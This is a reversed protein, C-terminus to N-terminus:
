KLGYYQELTEIYGDLDMAELENLYNQWVADDNIDLRGTIFQTNMTSIHTNINTKYDAVAQVVDEDACWIINPTNHNVYYPEYVQASSVLILTNDTEIMSEDKESAYRVEASDVRPHTSGNWFWKEGSEAYTDIVKITNNTGLYNEADVREYTEDEVGWGTFWTGEESILWDLLEYARDPNECTSSIMCGLNLESGVRAATQQYNGKLPAMAPYDFWSMVSTDIDNGGYWCPFVGVTVVEKNLHGMFTSRDQIYTEEAILGEAYLDAIYRLGDRWGDTVASFYIENDDTIYYYNETYLEFPNMLFAIPDTKRGGYYGMLPIEDTADGNGNADNDRIAILYEKFEEPTSPPADWGLNELMDANYWMKYESQKHIGVDSYPFNYINGDTTTLMSEWGANEELVTKYATGDTIYDNLPLIAGAEAAATVQSTSYRQCFIDPYEDGTIMLNFLTASDASSSYVDFQLDVNFKEELYVTELCTDYDLDPQEPVWLTLTVLEKEEEVTDETSASESQVTSEQSNEESKQSNDASEADSSGCASLMMVSAMMLSVSALFKRKM